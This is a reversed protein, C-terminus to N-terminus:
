DLDFLHSMKGLTVNKLTISLPAQSPNIKYSAESPYEKIAIIYNAKTQGTLVEPKILAEVCHNAKPTIKFVEDGRVAETMVKGNSDLKPNGEADLVPVTTFLFTRFAQAIPLVNNNADKFTSLKSSIPMVYWRLNEDRQKTYKFYYHKGFRNDNDVKMFNKTYLYDVVYYSNPSPTKFTYQIDWVDKSFDDVVVTDVMIIKGDTTLYKSQYESNLITIKRGSYGVIGRQANQVMFEIASKTAIKEVGGVVHIESPKVERFYEFALHSNGNPSHEFGNTPNTIEPRYYDFFASGIDNGGNFTYAFPNAIDKFVPNCAFGLDQFYPYGTSGNWQPNYNTLINKSGDTYQIFLGRHDLKEDIDYIMEFPFLLISCWEEFGYLVGTYHSGMYMTDAGAIGSAGRVIGSVHDFNMDYLTEFSADYIDEFYDPNDAILKLEARSRFYLDYIFTPDVSEYILNILKYFNCPSGSGTYSLDGNQEKALYTSATGTNMFAGIMSENFVMAIRRGQHAINKYKAEVEEKIEDDGARIVPLSIREYIKEAIQWEIDHLKDDADGMFSSGMELRRNVKTTKTTSDLHQESKLTLEATDGIKVVDYTKIVEYKNNDAVYSLTVENDTTSWSYLEPARYINPSWYRNYGVGRIIDKCSVDDHYIYISQGASFYIFDINNFFDNVTQCNALPLYTDASTSTKSYDYYLLKNLENPTLTIVQVNYPYYDVTQEDGNAVSNYTLVTYDTDPILKPAIDLLAEYTGYKSKTFDFDRASYEMAYNVDMSASSTMAEDYFNLVKESVPICMYLQNRPDSFGSAEQSANCSAICPPLHVTWADASDGVECRISEAPTYLIPEFTETEYRRGVWSTYLDTVESLDTTPTVDVLEGEANEIQWGTFVYEDFKGRQWQKVEGNSNVVYNGSDDTVYYDEFGLDLCSKQFTYNSILMSFEGYNIPYFASASLAMPNIIQNESLALEGAVATHTPANYSTTNKYSATDGENYRVFHGNEVKYQREYDVDIRYHNSQLTKLFQPANLYKIKYQVAQKTLTDLRLDYDMQSILKGTILQRELLDLQEELADANAEGGLGRITSELPVPTKGNKIGENNIKYILQIRIANKESKTLAVSDEDQASLEFLGQGGIHPRLESKTATPSIELVVYPDSISGVDKLELSRNDATEKITTRYVGSYDKGDYSYKAQFDYTNKQYTTHFTYKVEDLLSYDKTGEVKSENAVIGGQNKIAEKMADISGDGASADFVVTNAGLEFYDAINDATIVPEADKTAANVAVPSAFSWDSVLPAIMSVALGLAIIKKGTNTLRM